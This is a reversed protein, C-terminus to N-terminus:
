FWACPAALMIDGGLGSAVHPPQPRACLHGLGTTVELTGDSLRHEAVIWTPPQGLADRFKQMLKERTTAPNLADSEIPVLPVEVPSDGRSTAEAAQTSGDAFPADADQNQADAWSMTFCGLMAVAFVQMTRQSAGKREASSATNARLTFQDLTSQQM